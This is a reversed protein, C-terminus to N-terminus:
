RLIADVKTRFLDTYEQNIVSSGVITPVAKAANTLKRWEVNLAKFLRKMEGIDNITLALLPIKGKFSEELHRRDAIFWDNSSIGKRLYDYEGMPAHQRIPFIKADRLSHVAEEPNDHQLYKDLELFIETIYAIDAPRAISKAELVLTDISADEVNL